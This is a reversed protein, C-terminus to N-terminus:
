LTFYKEDYEWFDYKWWASAEQKIDLNKSQRQSVSVFNFILMTVVSMLALVIVLEVLTVAKKTKKFKIM